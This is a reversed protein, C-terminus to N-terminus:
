GILSASALEKIIRRVKAIEEVSPWHGFFARAVDVTYSPGMRHLLELVADKERGSVTGDTSNRLLSGDENRAWTKAQQRQRTEFQRAAIFDARARRERPPPCNECVVNSLHGCYPFLM